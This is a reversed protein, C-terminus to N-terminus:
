QRPPLRPPLNMRPQGGHFKVGKYEGPGQKTEWNSIRNSMSSTRDDKSDAPPSKSQFMEVGGSQFMINSLRVNSGGSNDLAPLPLQPPPPPKAKVPQFNHAIIFVYFYKM